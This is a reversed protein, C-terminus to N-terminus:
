VRESNVPYVLRSNIGPKKKIEILKIVIDKM